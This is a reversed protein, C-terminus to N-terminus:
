ETLTRELASVAALADSLAVRLGLSLAAESALRIDAGVRRSDAKLRDLAASAELADPTSGIDRLRTGVAGQIQGIIPALDMHIARLDAWLAGKDLRDLLIECEARIAVLDIEV